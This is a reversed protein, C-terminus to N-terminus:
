HNLFPLDFRGNPKRDFFEGLRDPNGGTVSNWSELAQCIVNLAAPAHPFRRPNREIYQGARETLTEFTILKM